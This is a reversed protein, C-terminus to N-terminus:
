LFWRQVVEWLGEGAGVASKSRRAAVEIRGAFGFAGCVGHDAAAFKIADCVGDPVVQVVNSANQDGALPSTLPSIASGTTAWWTPDATPLLYSRSSCKRSLCVAIPADARFSIHFSM